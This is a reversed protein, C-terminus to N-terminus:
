VLKWKDVDLVGKTTIRIEPIVPLATFSLTMFPDIGKNVGLKYAAEHVGDLMAKAEAAPAESMLGAVPLPYEALVKGKSYVIM